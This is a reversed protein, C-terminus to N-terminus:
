SPRRQPLKELVSLPESFGVRRTLKSRWTERLLRVQIAALVRVTSLRDGAYESQRIGDLLSQGPVGSQVGGQLVGVVVLPLNGEVVDQTVRPGLVQLGKQRLLLPYFGPGDQALLNVVPGRGGNDSEEGSVVLPEPAARGSNPGGSVRDCLALLLQVPRDLGGEATM